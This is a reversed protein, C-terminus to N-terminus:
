ADGSEVRCGIRSRNRAVADYVREGLASMGPLHLLPVLPWLLPLARAIRRFAFYGRHARGAADVTWMADDLDAGRLGPFRELVRDRENADHFALRRGPDLVRLVRVTRLCLLCLGDFVVEVRARESQRSM